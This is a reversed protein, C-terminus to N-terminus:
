LLSTKSSKGHNMGGKQTVHIILCGIKIFSEIVAKRYCEKQPLDNMGQGLSKLTYIQYIEKLTLHHM